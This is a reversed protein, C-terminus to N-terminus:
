ENRLAVAPDVRAARRAPLLSAATATLGLGLLVAVVTLPDGAPVAYLFGRLAHGVGTAGLLGIATGAGVLALSGRLVSRLERDPTSGLALRIGIERTRLRVVQNLVSYIGAAALVVAIIAFGSLLVLSSRRGALSNGLRASLPQLSEVPLLPDLERVAGTVLPALAAPDGRTRLVVTLGGPAFQAAPYYVTPRSPGDLRDHLVDGVVGVVELENDSGYNVRMRKGVPSEGPWEERALQRSVVVVRPAGAKDQGTFGRGALLPIEMASFYGPEVIRLGAVPEEGAPPVPRDSPHFTSGAGPGTFPLFNVGGVAVVAPDRRLRDFLQDFFLLQRAQDPYRSQPLNLEATLVGRSDFGPRVDELRALSRLLLGAGHLLVLALAFQGAVLLARLRRSARGGHVRDTGSRLVSGPDGRLFAAVTLLGLVVGLGVAGLALGAVLPLDLRADAIRPVERALRPALDIAWLAFVTGAAAGALALLSCETVWGAIIRARSAGMARQIAFDRRRADAQVLLLNGLNSAAILLVLGVAGLLLLLPREVSGLVDERLPLVHVGWGANFGPYEQELVRGIRNMEEQAQALTHGPRLRGIAMSYRGRRVRMGESLRFPEWYEETGLPLFSRPLVGIIQAQGSETTVMRGVVESMGGFRRQWLGWSLLLTPVSGSDADAPIFTRGLLPRVGLLNFLNPTVARGSIREPDGDGTFAVGSWTYLALDTFSTARDRWDLFNAPSVVNHDNARPRNAEWLAVLEGPHEYPLPELLSARVVAILATVSGLALGLILAGLVTTGASRRLRRAARAIEVLLNM